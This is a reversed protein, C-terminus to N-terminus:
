YWFKLTFALQKGEDDVDNDACLDTHTKVRSWIMLRMPTRAPNQISTLLQAHAYTLCHTYAHVHIHTHTHSTAPYNTTEGGIKRIWLVNKSSASVGTPHYVTKYQSYQQKVMKQYAKEWHLNGNTKFSLGNSNNQIHNISVLGLVHQARFDLIELWHQLLNETKKFGKLLNDNRNLVFFLFRSLANITFVFGISFFVHEIKDTLRFGKRHGWFM